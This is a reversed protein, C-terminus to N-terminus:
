QLLKKYDVFCFDGYDYINERMLKGIDEQGELLEFNHCRKDSFYDSKLLLINEVSIPTCEIFDIFWLGSLITEYQESSVKIYIDATRDKM